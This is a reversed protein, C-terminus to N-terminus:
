EIDEISRPEKSLNEFQLKCKDEMAHDIKIKDRLSSKICLISNGM